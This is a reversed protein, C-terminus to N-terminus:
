LKVSFVSSYVRTLLRFSPIRKIFSIRNYPVYGHACVKPCTISALGALGLALALVLARNISRKLMKICSGSLIVLAPLKDLIRDEQMVINKTAM